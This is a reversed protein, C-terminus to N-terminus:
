PSTKDRLSQGKESAEFTRLTGRPQAWNKLRKKISNQQKSPAWSICNSIFFSTHVQHTTNSLDELFVARHDTEVRRIFVVTVPHHQDSRRGVVLVLVQRGVLLVVLKEEVRGLYIQRMLAPSFWLRCASRCLHIIYWQQRFLIEMKTMKWDYNSFAQQGKCQIDNEHVLLFPGFHSEPEM